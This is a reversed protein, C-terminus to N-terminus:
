LISEQLIGRINQLQTSASADIVEDPMEIICTGSEARAMPIIKVHDSLSNLSAALVPDAQVSERADSGAIYIRVWERRKQKETASLIMRSIIESSSKLSVHVVKEAVAVTLDLLEGRITDIAEEQARTAQELFRTVEDVLMAADKEYLEQHERAARAAGEAYGQRIGEEYAQQQMKEVLEEAQSQARELIQAAQAEADRVIAEAQATAFDFKEQTKKAQAVTASNPAFADVPEVPLKLGQAKPPAEEVAIDQAQPLTYAQAAPKAFRKLISPLSRM